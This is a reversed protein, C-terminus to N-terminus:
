IVYMCVYVYIYMYMYIYMCVYIYIYVYKHYSSIYVLTRSLTNAAAFHSEVLLVASTVQFAWHTRCLAIGLLIQYCGFRLFPYVMNRPYTVLYTHNLYMIQMICIIGFPEIMKPAATYMNNHIYTRIYTNYIYVCRLYLNLDESRQALDRNKNISNVYTEWHRFSRPLFYRFRKAVL